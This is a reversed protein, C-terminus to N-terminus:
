SLLVSSMDGRVVVSKVNMDLQVPFAAISGVTCLTMLLSMDTVQIKIETM